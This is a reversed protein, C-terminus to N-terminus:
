GDRSGSFEVLYIDGRIWDGGERRLKEGRSEIMRGGVRDAMRTVFDPHHAFRGTARVQWGSEEGHETSFVFHAGPRSRAAVAEFLPALDAMYALVDAAVFLDYCTDEALLFEIVDAAALRDYVEKEAAVATMKESLDVGTLRKCLPRFVGGALGTGCGLDICDTFECNRSFRSCLDFLLDPVRYELKDLLSQEFHDSYHDFLERVYESPPTASATGDLAALMHMAGPHEPRYLLLRRYLERARDYDGSRHCLGAYNNIGALHDPQLILLRGYWSAADELEGAERCCNALNYIIDVNDPQLDLAQEYVHRAEQFNGQQKLALGLNFWTDADDGRVAAAARFAAGAAAYEELEYLALGKNYLVLDADPHQDLIRDYLAVARSFDGLEHADIADHYVQQLDEVM